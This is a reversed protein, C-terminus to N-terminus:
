GRLRLFFWGLGAAMLAVAAARVPQWNELARNIRSLLLGLAAILLAEASIAGAMVWGAPYQSESIFLAFYLGHFAGLVAVVAWRQGAKPLWLIEVALYAITLACAAEVFRPAPWWGTLPQLVAAATEGALFMAALLALERRSRAALVLALLFLWQAAGGAARFVGAVAPRAALEFATPPRFRLETRPFSLDLVAQDRADGKIARIMHVHNPVTIEHLASRVELTEIPSPFEYRAECVMEAQASDERCKRDLSVPTAGASRFTMAGLINREPDKVHAVEYMPMRIEFRLLRGDIVAEGTSMSVMHAALPLAAAAALVAATRAIRM